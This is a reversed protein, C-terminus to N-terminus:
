NKEEIIYELAGPELQLMYVSKPQQAVRVSLQKTGPVSLENADVYLSILEKYNKNADVSDKPVLFTVSVKPPFLTLAYNPPLNVVEIHEVLMQDYILKQVALEVTISDPVLRVGEPAMLAVKHRSSGESGILIPITDTPIIAQQVQLSDVVEKMGYVMVVEPEMSFSSLLLNQTSFNVQSTFAVPMSKGVLPTYRIAIRAPSLQIGLGLASESLFRRTRPLAGLVQEQLAAGEIVWTGGNPILAASDARLQVVPRGRFLTRLSYGLLASGKAKIILDMQQPVETSDAIAFYAPLTPPLLDLSLRKTYTDRLAYRLWLVASLVICLLLIVGRQRRMFYSLFSKERLIRRLGRM